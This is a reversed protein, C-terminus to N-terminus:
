SPPLDLAWIGEYPLPKMSQFRVRLEAAKRLAQYEEDTKLTIASTKTSFGGPSIGGFMLNVGPYERGESDLLRPYGILSFAGKGTNKVTMRVTVQRSGGANQNLEVGNVTAVFQTTEQSFVASENLNLTKQPTQLNSFYSTCGACVITVLLVACLGIWKM